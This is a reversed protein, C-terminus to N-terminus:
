EDGVEMVIVPKGHPLKALIGEMSPKTGTLIEHYLLDTDFFEHTWVPRNMLEEARKHIDPFTPYEAVGGIPTGCLLRLEAVREEPTM